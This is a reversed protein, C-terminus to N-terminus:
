GFFSIEKDFNIYDQLLVEYYDKINYERKHLENCFQLVIPTLDHSIKESLIETQRNFIDHITEDLKGLKEIYKIWYKNFLEFSEDSKKSDGFWSFARYAAMPVGVLPNSVMMAGTAFNKLCNMGLDSYPSDLNNKILSLYKKVQEQTEYIEGLESDLLSLNKKLLIVINDIEIQKKHTVYKFKILKEDEYINIAHDVINTYHNIYMESSYFVQKQIEKSIAPIDLTNICKIVFASNLKKKGEEEFLASVESLPQWIHELIVISSFKPYNNFKSKLFSKLQSIGLGSISSTKETLQKSCSECRIENNLDKFSTSMSKKCYPCIIKFHNGFGFLYFYLNKFM